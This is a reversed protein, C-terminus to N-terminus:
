QNDFYSSQKDYKLVDSLMSSHIGIRFSWSQYRGLPTWDFSFDFCHLKRSISIQTTTLEMAKFDFGSTLKIDWNETPSLTGNFGLTQNHNHNTFLQGGSYSYRKSYNYSYNFSVSWPVSFPQYVFPNVPM